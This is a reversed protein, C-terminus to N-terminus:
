RNLQLAGNGQSAAGWHRKTPRSKERISDIRVARSEGSATSGSQRASAAPRGGPQGGCVLFRQRILPLSSDTGQRSSAVTLLALQHSSAYAEPVTVRVEPPAQSYPRLRRHRDSQICTWGSEVKFDSNISGVSRFTIKASTVAPAASASAPALALSVTSLEIGHTRSPSNRSFGIKTAFTHRASRTSPCSSTVLLFAM